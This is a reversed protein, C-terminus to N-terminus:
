DGVHQNIDILAALRLQEANKNIQELYTKARMRKRKKVHM